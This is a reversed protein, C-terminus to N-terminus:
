VVCFSRGFFKSIETVLQRKGDDESSLTKQATCPMDQLDSQVELASM